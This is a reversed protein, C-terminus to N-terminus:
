LGGEKRKRKPRRGGSLHRRFAALSDPSVHHEIGEADVQAVPEPVGLSRLFEVVIEHRGRSTEALRAGKDTLFISRYPQTTVYGDRQLRAVTRIVTVHSVGFRRALDVARAEGTTSALEAIAEVYDEALERSHERRTQRLASAQLEASRGDHSPGARIASPKPRQTM